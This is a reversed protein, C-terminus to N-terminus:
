VKKREAKPPAPRNEDTAREIRNLAERSRQAVVVDFDPDPNELLSALTISEVTEGQQSNNNQLEDNVL